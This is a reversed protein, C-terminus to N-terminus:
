FAFFNYYHSAPAVFTVWGWERYVCTDLGGTIGDFCFFARHSFSGEDIVFNLLLYMDSIVSSSQILFM